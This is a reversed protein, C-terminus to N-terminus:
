KGSSRAGTGLIAVSAGTKATETLLPTNDIATPGSIINPAVTASDINVPLNASAASVNGASYTQKVSLDHLGAALLSSTISRSGNSDAIATGLVTLGDSALM